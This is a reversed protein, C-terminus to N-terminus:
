LGLFFPRIAEHKLFIENKKQPAGNKSKCSKTYFAPKEAIEYGNYGSM